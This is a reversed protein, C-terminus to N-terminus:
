GFVFSTPTPLVASGRPVTFICPYIDSCITQLPPYKGSHFIFIDIFYSEEDGSRQEYPADDNMTARAAGRVLGCVDRQM